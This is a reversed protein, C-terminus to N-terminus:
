VSSLRMRLKMFPGGELCCIITRVRKPSMGGGVEMFGGPKRAGAGNRSEQVELRQRKHNLKMRM